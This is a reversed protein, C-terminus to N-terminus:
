EPYNVKYIKVYGYYSYDQVDGRFGDVLSFYKPKEISASALGAAQYEGLYDGLYLKTMMVKNMDYDKDKPVYILSTFTPFNAYRDPYNLANGLIAHMSQVGLLSAGYTERWTKWPVSQVLKGSDDILYVSVGDISYNGNMIEFMIGMQYQGVRQNCGFFLRSVTDFGGQVNQVPQPKIVSNGPSFSCELYGLGYGEIRPNYLRFRSVRLVGGESSFTGVLRMFRAKVDGFSDTQMGSYDGGAKDLVRQWTVGDASAEVYYRYSGGGALGVQVGNVDYVAGYDILISGTNVPVSALSVGDDKLIADCGQGGVCSVNAGIKRAPIYEGLGSTAIFHPAGSKGIMAYDIVVYSTGYKKAIALADSENETVVHFRAVDQVMFREAKVNDLISIRDSMATIWHGYDWWTLVIINNPQKALWELAPQWQARGGVPGMYMPYAGGFPGFFPIGGSTFYYSVPLFLLVILPVLRWGALGKRDLPLILGICAGLAVVPASAVFQYQSRYAVGYLIPLSWALIFSAGFSRKAFVFYLLFPIMALGFIIELGFVSRLPNLCEANLGTCLARQEQTTMGLIEKQVAGKYLGQVFGSVEGPSSVFFVYFVLAFVLVAFVPYVLSDLQREIRGELGAGDNLAVGKMFKKRVAELGFSVFIAGGFPALFQVSLLTRLMSLYDIRGQQHLVVAALLSMLMPIVFYPMHEIANKRGVFSAAAFLVAFVAFITYAYTFGAWSIALVMFSFGALFSLSLSKKRYSLTFLLFFAVSLFMGFTDDEPNTAVARSAYSPNMMLFLAGLIAVAYNYPRMDWFVEKLLLYFLLITFAGIIGPALMAVDQVSYGWINLVSAVSAMFGSWQLPLGYLDLTSNLNGYADVTPPLVPYVKTEREPLFGTKYATNAHRFLYYSDMDSIFQGRSLDYSPTYAPAMHIILATFFVATIGATSLRMLKMVWLSYAMSLVAFFFAFVWYDRATDFAQKSQNDYAYFSFVATLIIFFALLVFKWSGPGFFRSLGGFSLDVAKEVAEPPKIDNEVKKKRKPNKKPM